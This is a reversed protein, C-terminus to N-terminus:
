QAVYKSYVFNLQPFCLYHVMQSGLGKHVVCASHVDGENWVPQLTLPSSLEFSWQFTFSFHELTWMFFIYVALYGSLYSFHHKKM